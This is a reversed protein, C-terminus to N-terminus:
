KSILLEFPRHDSTKEDDPFDGDRVIINCTSKWDKAPGAVFAFDLMSGPYDDQGDPSEPNDYWNTDILETPEIWRWINDKMMNVFGPNGKRTSFVYDYNYDGLAFVPLTQDRAWEVLKTAQEERIEAKGRALHNVMVLFEVGTKRHKLNVVLPARYRNLINIENIEFQRVLEFKDENYLLELRDNRGSKSYAYEYHKGLALRFKKLDAPMVETLAFVDYHDNPNLEALQSAFVDSDAGESEVNWSLFRFQPEASDQILDGAAAQTDNNVAKVDSPPTGNDPTGLTTKVPAASDPEAVKVGENTGPQSKSNSDCGVLMCTAFLLLFLWNPCSKM